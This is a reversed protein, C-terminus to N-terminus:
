IRKGKDDFFYFRDNLFGIKIKEEKLYLRDFGVKFSEVATISIENVNLHVIQDAGIIESYDVVAEIDGEDITIHVPRIAATVKDKKHKLTTKIEKGLINVTYDKGKSIVPLDEFVNVTPFGIFSAVFLNKPYNYVETVDADQQVIGDKLVIVREALTLAEVQDHTVYIFTTKLKKHIRKLLRQLSTRMLVDLNAFPEDMLFIKPQRVLARAIAVRQKEGGSLDEPLRELKDKVNLLEAIYHVKENIEERPTHATQLPFAINEFVTLGPYLAYNQFVMAIDRDEPKINNMLQNDFYIEGVSPTELGAILRLFSTKGSGSPGLLVVFEGDKITASVHQLAIVGENSTYPMQKQKQLIKEKRKRDFIGTIQAFPYILAVDDIKITPM